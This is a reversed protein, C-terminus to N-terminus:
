HHAAIEFIGSIDLILGVKGDGMIAGGAIGKIEKMGEGLSKIVVEEKGLLEDLLLCRQEGDYEVSVVLGDWPEVSDGQVGFIRDLRVLPILKSRSLILEAKGEVTSYQKKEPRFSELIMLAPIIYREKGVRVLMGEIIALTLPLSIIFKSGQGARSNIEVRGRLKEIAKKVVDLGVGRGSVDTVKEATSFGPAFILNCIDAESMKGEEKILRKEKAKAIIKEKNLGRGDDEIEIVINGGRHYAQLRITGKRDKNNQERVDPLELGHDVANRIMHVMPEYLEDVVNRDIETEEGIMELAVEKGSNKALDRVLRVMKQFTSRIPVMRLSMATRQLGSTIQNLQNLTHYLKQDKAGLIWQNQRLISQNIVLEGTLDILSDLKKTDVKVHLDINGHSFKKQDRLASLVEKPEAKKEEILIEGIKKEPAEKQKALSEQVDESTVAGKQILIEGLPKDGIETQESLVQEIREILPEYPVESKQSVGQELQEQVCQIMKKLLDVSELILDVIPGEIKIKGNRARDLMNEASHAMKNIHGLNLFGSVGKITHFPRFIANITEINSSDQELDMLKVEINGLNELSEMVFDSLIQRDEESLGFSGAMEETAPANTKDETKGDGGDRVQGTQPGPAETPEAKDLGLKNLLWGIDEKLGEGRALAHCLIQLYHIGEELPDVEEKEFLILQELYGKCAKLLHGLLTNQYATTERELDSLANMINGMAPINGKELTVAELAMVDLAQSIKEQNLSM